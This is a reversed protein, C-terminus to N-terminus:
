ANPYLAVEGYFSITKRDVPVWERGRTASCFALIRDKLGQTVADWLRPAVVVNDCYRLAVEWIRDVFDWPDRRRFPELFGDLREKFQVPYHFLVVSGEESPVVNLTLFAGPGEEPTPLPGGEHDWGPEFYGSVAFPLLPLQLGNLERFAGFARQRHVEAYFAAIGELKQAALHARVAIAMHLEMSRPARAEITDVLRSRHHAMWRAVYLARLVSRFALLFAQETTPHALSPVDISRFLEGDHRACLGPFTTAERVGVLKMEVDPEGITQSYTLLRVHGKDALLALPGRRGMSHSRIPKVGCPPQIPATCAVRPVAKRLEIFAGRLRRKEDDSLPAAGAGLWEPKLAEGAEIRRTIEAVVALEIDPERPV